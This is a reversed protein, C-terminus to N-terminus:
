AETAGGMRALARYTRYVYHHSVLARYTQYVHTTVRSTNRTNQRTTACMVQLIHFILVHM